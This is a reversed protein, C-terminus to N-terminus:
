PMDSWQEQFGAIEMALCPPEASHIHHRCLRIAAPPIEFVIFIRGESIHSCPFLYQSFLAKTFAKLEHLLNWIWHGVWMETGNIYIYEHRLDVRIHSCQYSVSIYGFYITFYELFGKLFIKSKNSNWIIKMFEKLFYIQLDNCLISYNVVSFSFHGVVNM